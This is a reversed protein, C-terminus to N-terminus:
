DVKEARTCVPSTQNDFLSLLELSIYLIKNSIRDNRNFHYYINIIEYHWSINKGMMGDKWGFSQGKVIPNCKCVILAYIKKWVIIKYKVM